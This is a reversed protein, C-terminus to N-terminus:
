GASDSDDIQYYHRSEVIDAIHTWSQACSRALALVALACHPPVSHAVEQQEQPSLMHVGMWSLIRSQHRSFVARERHLNRWATAVHEPTIASVRVARRRLPIPTESDTARTADVLREEDNVRGPKGTATTGPPRPRRGEPVVSRGEMLRIRVDRATAVSIGATRAIDRLSSEPREEAIRAAALRGASADLPRVRGDLGRRTNLRESQDTSCRIRALTTASLGTVTAVARDSWHPHHAIIRGAASEREQLTLPLGHTTNARVAQVFADAESGDVFVVSITTDGRLQAARYRHMGDVLSMSDRHVLVPPLGERAELLLRVHNDDVGHKRLCEGMRIDTLPIIEVQAPGTPATSASDSGLNQTLSYAPSEMVTGWLEALSAGSCRSDPSCYMCAGFARSM